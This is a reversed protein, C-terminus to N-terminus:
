VSILLVFPIPKKFFHSFIDIITDSGATNFGAKYVLAEGFGGVVGACLVYLLINDFSFNLMEPFGETLYVFVTSTTAGIISMLSKKFGLTILSMLLFVANGVLIITRPNISFFWM